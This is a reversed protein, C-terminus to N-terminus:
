SAILEGIFKMRAMNRPYDMRLPGLIGICGRNGAFTHPAGVFGCEKGFPNDKGLLAQQRTLNKALKELIRDLHDIVKALSVTYGQEEFEPHAFLVSLGTYYFDNSSFALVVANDAFDSLARAVEKLGAGEDAHKWLGQYVGQERKELTVADTRAIWHRYAHETPIRGASIHPQTVYGEEELAAMDNRITAPSVKLSYKEALCKSGVPESTAVYEEIIHALLEEQRADLEMVLLHDAAAQYILV